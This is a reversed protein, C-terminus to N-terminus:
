GGARRRDRAARRNAVIWVAFGLGAAAVGALLVFSIERPGVPFGLGRWVVAWLAFLLLALLGAVTAGVFLLHLLLHTTAVGLFRM